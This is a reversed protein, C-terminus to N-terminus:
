FDDFNFFFEIESIKIDTKLDRNEQFFMILDSSQQIEFGFDIKHTDINLSTKTENHMRKPGSKKYARLDTM